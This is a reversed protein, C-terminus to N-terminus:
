KRMTEPLFLGVLKEQHSEFVKRHKHVLKLLSEDDVPSLKELDALIDSRFHSIKISMFCAAQFREGPKFISNLITMLTLGLSLYPAIPLLAEFINQTNNLSVEETNHTIIVSLFTSIIPIAVLLFFGFWKYIFVKRGVISETEVVTQFLDDLPYCDKTYNNDSLIKKAKELLNDLKKDIKGM